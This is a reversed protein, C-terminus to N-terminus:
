KGELANIRAELKSIAENLSDSSNIASKDTGLSYDKLTSISSSPIDDFVFRSVFSTNYANSGFYANETTIKFVQIVGPFLVVVTPDSYNYISIIKFRNNQTDEMFCPIGKNFYGFLENKPFTEFDQWGDNGKRYLTLGYAEAVSPERVYQIVIKEIDGGALDDVYKKTAPHYDLTPTYETTNTKTIVESKKVLDIPNIFDIKKCSLHPADVAYVYIDILYVNPGDIAQCIASTSGIEEKAQILIINRDKADKMYRIKGIQDNPLSYTNIFSTMISSPSMGHYPLNDLDFASDKGCYYYFDNNYVKEIAEEIQQGSYKSNFLM